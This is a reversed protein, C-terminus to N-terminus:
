KAQSHSPRVGPLPPLAEFNELALQGLAVNAEPLREIDEAFWPVDLTPIPPPTGPLTTDVTAESEPLPEVDVTFTPISVPVPEPQARRPGPVEVM